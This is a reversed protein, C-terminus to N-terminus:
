NGDNEWGIDDNIIFECTIQITNFAGGIILLTLFGEKDRYAPRYLYEAWEKRLYEKIADSDAVCLTSTCKYNTTVKLLDHLSLLPPSISEDNKILEQEELTLGSVKLTIKAYKETGYCTSCIRKKQIKGDNKNKSYFSSLVIEISADVINGCDACKIEDEVLTKVYEKDDCVMSFYFPMVRDVKINIEKVKSM